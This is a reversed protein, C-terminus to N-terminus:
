QQADGLGKVGIAASLGQRIHERDEAEMTVTCHPNKASFSRKWAECYAQVQADTPDAVTANPDMPAPTGLVGHPASALLELIQMVMQRETRGHTEKWGKSLFSLCEDLTLDDRELRHYSLRELIDPRSPECAPVGDAPALSLIVWGEQLGYCGELVHTVCRRLEEGTYVLPAGTNKMAWGSDRTRRLILVDGVAYDRDNYRIEHTKAGNAVADFAVPDTKLEHTTM